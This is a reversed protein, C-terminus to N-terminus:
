KKAAAKATDAAPASPSAAEQYLEGQKAKPAAPTTGHLTRVYSAIQEIQKPSYDDKWSKMGKDPYGYKITKFIDKFSGGHLWYDDTLNPGVLGGGDKLHCAACITEFVQKGAALDAADTLQKANNEDISGGVKALYAEKQIQANQMETTYEEFSGPATHSVHFRYLYICAFIITIYFGYKWWPPLINDLEQVGDYDHDLLVDKEKELAVSQNFYDWFQSTKAPAIGAETDQANSLSRILTRMAVLLGFIVFLELIIIGMLLYFDNIPVGGVNEAVAAKVPAAADAAYSHISSFGLAFLLLVSKVINGSKRENRIKDRLVMSLQSLVFAAIGIVFLLILIVSILGILLTSSSSGSAGPAGAANEAAFTTGSCLLCAAAIAFFRNIYTRM